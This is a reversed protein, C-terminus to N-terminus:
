GDVIAAIGGLNECYPEVGERRRRVLIAPIGMAKAGTVDAEANDGVMWIAGADPLDELVGRFAEPHPKEYGTQASNFIREVHRGLGLRGVIEPLEPVHNTLLAHKWGSSTLGELAPIADEYLRWREPDLYAGRVARAMESARAKDAGAARFDDAFRPELAGWWADASALHPHHVEPSHWPFGTRLFPRILEPDVGHGPSKPDLVELLAQTWAPWQGVRYALTGDFDWVLWKVTGGLLRIAGAPPDGPPARASPMRM